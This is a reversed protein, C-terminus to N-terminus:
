ESISYIRALDATEIKSRLKLFLVVAGLAMGLTLGLWVGAANGQLVIGFFYAACLGFLFFCFINVYMTFRTEKLGRLAGAEAVRISDFIQYIAFVAFLVISQRVLEYNQMETPSLDIKLLLHPFLLLPIAILLGAVLCIGLGVYSAYWVGTKDQRGVNQGVLISTGQSLAYPVSILIGEFQLIIQHAALATANFQSIFYTAITFAVLEIFYTFGIPLGIQLMEKWYHWMLKGFYHYINYDRTFRSFQLYILLVLTTFAYCVALGYGIGQIGMAPFGFKGFIFIYLIIIEFPVEFLSIWLSLKTRGIGSLFHEMMALIILGPAAWVIAHAYQTAFKLVEPNPASWQVFYPVCLILLIVPIWSLVNMMLAQGMIESIAQNNKAGFQHSVLVSVSHFIGFCFTTGAIWITNVLVSAALVNPGLHAVMATGAFPSLSYIVWATLLPLSLGLNNKIEKIVSHSTIQKVSM